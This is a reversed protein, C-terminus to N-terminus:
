ARIKYTIIINNISGKKAKMRINNLIISTPTGFYEDPLAFLQPDINGYFYGGEFCIPEPYLVKHSLHEEGFALFDFQTVITKNEKKDYIIDFGNDYGVRRILLEPSEVVNSSFFLKKKGCLWDGKKTAEDVDKDTYFEKNGTYIYEAYPFVKEGDLLYVVNERASAFLIRNDSYHLRYNVSQMINSDLSYTPIINNKKVGNLDYLNIRHDTDSTISNNSMYPSVVSYIYNDGIGIEDRDYVGLTYTRNYNGNLDYLLLKSTENDTLAIVNQEENVHMSSLNIWEDNAKGRHSIKFKFKGTKDFVCVFGGKSNSFCYIREKGVFFNTINPISAELCTDLEIVNIDSVIDEVNTITDDNCEIRYKSLVTEKNDCSVLLVGIFLTILIKKM